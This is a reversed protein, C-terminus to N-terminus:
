PKGNQGDAGSTEDSGTGVAAAAQALSSISASELEKGSPSGGSSVQKIRADLADM